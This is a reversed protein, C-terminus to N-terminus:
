LAVEVKYLRDEGDDQFRGSSQADLSSSESQADIESQTRDNLLKDEECSSLTIFSICLAISIQALKKM